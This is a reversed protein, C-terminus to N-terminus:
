RCLRERETLYSVIWDRPVERHGLACLYPGERGCVFCVKDGMIVCPSDGYSTYRVIDDWSMERGRFHRSLPM